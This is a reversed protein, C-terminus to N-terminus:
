NGDTIRIEYMFYIEGSAALKPSSTRPFLSTGPWRRQVDAVNVPDSMVLVGFVRNEAEMRARLRLWFVSNPGLDLTDIRDKNWRIFTRSCDCQPYYIPRSLFGSVTSVPADWYGALFVDYPYQKRIYAATAEGFSFPLQFAGYAAQTGGLANLALLVAVAARAVISPKYARALWLCAIFSIFMMGYHRAEGLFKIYMFGFILVLATVFVTAASCNGVAVIAIVLLIAAAIWVIGSARAGTWAAILKEYHPDWFTWWAPSIPAFASAFRNAAATLRQSDIALFWGEAFTTDGAPIMWAIAICMLAVYIALWPAIERLPSNRRLLFGFALAMSTLAAFVSTNAALGLLVWSLWRRATQRDHAYLALLILLVGLGYSRALVSYQFILFYSTLLLLKEVLSFPSGFAIIAFIAVTIVSQVIKLVIPDTSVWAGLWLLAYWLGPHGENRTNWYLDLPTRSDVAIMWAQLEDRWMSHNLLLTGSAALCCAFGVALVLLGVRGSTREGHLM